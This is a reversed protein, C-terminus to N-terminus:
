HLIKVEELNDVEGNLGLQNTYIHMKIDQWNTFGLHHEYLSGRTQGFPYIYLSTGTSHSVLEVQYDTNLEAPGLDTISAYGYVTSARIYWRGNEMFATHFRMDSRVETTNTAGFGIEGTSHWSDTAKIKARFIVEDTFPYVREGYIDFPVTNWGSMRQIQLVGNQLSIHEPLIGLGNADVGFNQSWLTTETPTSSESVTISIEHTTTDLNLDTVALKIAHTGPSLNSLTLTEGTETRQIGDLTWVITLDAVANEVDSIQALVEVVEGLLFKDGNFPSLIEAHPPNNPAPQITIQIPLSVTQQNNSDTVQAYVQYTGVALNNIIISNGTEPRVQGSIKWEVATALLTDDDEADTAYATFTIPDGVTFFANNAPATINIQPPTNPAPIVTITVAPTETSKGGSDTVRASISYSGPSLDQISIQAGTEARAVGNILWKVASGLVVNDDENDSVNASCSIIEGAVYSLGHTPSVLEISPPSNPISDPVFEKVNDFYGDLGLQNSYLYLRADTWDTDNKHHEYLDGRQQGLPYVYLSSGNSHLEVEIQYTVGLSAPGVYIVSDYGYVNNTRVYWGGNEMFASHFRKDGVVETSNKAGFGLEGSSYWANTATLQATFTAKEEFFYSREGISEYFYTQWGSMRSASLVGNEVNMNQPLQTLGSSDSTFEQQWAASQLVTIAIIQTNKTKGGSDTISGYVTHEGVSLNSLIVNSGTEALLTGDLFWQIQTSLMVDDDEMDSATAMLSLQENDLMEVTTPTDLIIEPPLNFLRLVYAHQNGEVNTLQGTLSSYDVVDEPQHQILYDKDSIDKVTNLVYDPIHIINESALWEQLITGVTRDEEDRPIFEVGLPRKWFVAKKGAGKGFDGYGFFYNYTDGTGIAHFSLTSPAPDPRWNEYDSWINWSELPIDLLHYYHPAGYPRLVIHGRTMDGYDHTIEGVIFEGSHSIAHIFSPFGGGIRQYNEGYLNVGGFVFSHAYHLQGVRYTCTYSRTNSDIVKIPLIDTNDIYTPYLNRCVNGILKGSTDYSYAFCSSYNHCLTGYIVLESPNPNNSIHTPFFTDPRDPNMISPIFEQIVRDIWLVTKEGSTGLIYRGDGSISIAKSTLEGPLNPLPQMGEEETWVFATLGEYSSSTGIVTKGDASIAVAESYDEGGPLDGLDIFQASFSLPSFLVLILTIFTPLTYKQSFM